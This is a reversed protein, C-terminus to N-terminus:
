AMPSVGSEASVPSNSDGRPSPSPHVGRAAGSWQQAHTGHTNVQTRNTCPTPHDQIGPACDDREPDEHIKDVCAVSPCHPMHASHTSHPRLRRLRRGNTTTTRTGVSLDPRRRTTYSTVRPRSEPGNKPTHKLKKSAPPHKIYKLYMMYHATWAKKIRTRGRPRAYSSIISYLTCEQM